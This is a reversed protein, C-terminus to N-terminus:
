TRWCRVCTCGIVTYLPLDPSIKVTVNKSRLLADLTQLLEQALHRLDVEEAPQVVRGARFLKLLDALLKDMKNAAGVIRQLDEQVKEYKNAALDKELFGLFGKITVLPARLDHFAAYTFREIEANIAELQVILNKREEEAERHLRRTKADELERQHPPLLRAM